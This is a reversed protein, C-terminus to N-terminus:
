GFVEQKSTKRSKSQQSSNKFLSGLCFRWNTANERTKAFFSRNVFECALLRGYAFGSPKERFEV